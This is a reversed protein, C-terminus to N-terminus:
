TNKGLWSLIKEVEERPQDWIVYVMGEPGLDRHVSKVCDLDMPGQLLVRKGAARIKRLIDRWHPDYPEPEGAGPLWQIGDVGPLALIDDLHNLQQRGDLHYFCHDLYETEERIGPLAFERWMDNGLFVSFDCEVVATRGACWLSQGCVTGTQPSMGGAEYLSEYIFPYLARAQECGQKVKDPEDYLDLCLRDPHRLASFGDLHSHLDATGVLYNGQGRERLLRSYHLTGRWVPNNEDLEVPLFDDWSELVPDVWNTAQTDPSFKLESGLWAAYQDPGHDPAVFPILDGLFVTSEAWRDLLDLQEEYKGYCPNWYRTTQIDVPPEGTKKPAAACVLPRDLLEGRWFANWRQKVEDLDPKTKMKM